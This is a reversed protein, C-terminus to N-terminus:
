SVYMAPSLLVKRIQLLTSLQSDFFDILVSLAVGDRQERRLFVWVVVDITTM